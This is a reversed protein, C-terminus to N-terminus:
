PGTNAPLHVTVAGRTVVVPLARAIAAQTAATLGNAHRTFMAADSTAYYATMAQQYGPARLRSGSVIGPALRGRDTDYSTGTPDLVLPCGARLNRRLGTTELLLVPSDASVCRANRIDRELEARQIPIAQRPVLTLSAGALAVVVGGRAATGLGPHRDAADVILAAAAGFVIAGAPAIWGSYHSIFIPGSLLYGVEVALLVCWTRAAPIRWAVVGVAAAGLGALVFVAADILPQFRAGGAPLGELDRLRAVTSVGIDPRALQDLLVYRVFEGPAVLFLPLCIAAFAATAGALLGLVPRRWGGPSDRSALAVAGAVILLPMAQWLQVAVSAGLVAGGVAARRADIPSRWRLILIGILLMATEPGLLLTTREVRIASYWIAYLAGALLGARRGYQGAVVAIFGANVAGLLMFAVRAVAFGTADDTVSALFAFPSLLAIIGPPHLMLFDRYPLVGHVLAVASAFYFGDDYGLDGHLGGGRLVPVSRAILAVIVIGALLLWDTATRPIWRPAVAGPREPRHGGM